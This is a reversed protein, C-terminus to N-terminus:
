YVPSFAQSILIGRSCIRHWLSVTKELGLHATGPLKNGCCFVMRPATAICDGLTCEKDIHVGHQFIGLLWYVGYLCFKAFCGDISIRVLM